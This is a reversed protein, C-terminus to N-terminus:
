CNGLIADGGALGLCGVMAGDMIIKTWHPAPFKWRVTIIKSAHSHLGMVGICRFRQLDKSVNAM